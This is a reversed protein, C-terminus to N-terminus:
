LNYIQAESKSQHEEVETGTHHFLSGAEGIVCWEPGVHLKKVVVEPKPLKGCSIYNM